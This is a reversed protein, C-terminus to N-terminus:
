AQLLLIFFAVIGIQTIVGFPFPARTHTYDELFKFIKALFAGFVGGRAKHHGEKSAFFIFYPAELWDPLNAFAFSWLITVLSLRSSFLLLTMAFAFITEGIALMGTQAVSRKKWDTGFDWHPVVDLVFHSALILPIALFPNDVSSAIAAGVLAHSTAMM